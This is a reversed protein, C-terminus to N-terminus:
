PPGTAMAAAPAGPGSSPDSPDPTEGIFYGLARRYGDRAMDQWDWTSGPIRDLEKVFAAERDSRDKMLTEIRGGYARIADFVTNWFPGACFRPVVGLDLCIEAISRGISRRRVQAEMEEMTPMFMEPDNSQRRRSPRTAPRRETQEETEASPDAAPDASDAPERPEACRRGAPGICVIDRGRQARELLMRELAVARMMGRHLHALIASLRNTGFCAAVANFDPNGARAPAIDALHRGHSFLITLTRLLAALRAPFPRAPPAPKPAPAPCSTAPPTPEM